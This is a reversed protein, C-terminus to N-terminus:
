RSVVFEIQEKEGDALGGRDPFSPTPILTMGTDSFKMIFRTGTAAKACRTEFEFETPSIWRGVAGYITRDLLFRNFKSTLAVEFVQTHTSLKTIIKILFESIEFSIKEMKSEANIPAINFMSYTGSVGAGGIIEQWCLVKDSITSYSKKMFRKQAGDNRASLACPVSANKTLYELVAISREDNECRIDEINKVIDEFLCKLVKDMNTAASTCVFVFDKDRCVVGYQGFAGDARFSNEYDNQWFQLGYGAAWDESMVPPSHPGTTPVLKSCAMDFWEENLLRKGQWVGKDAVFQIFKAMHEPKLKSGSGGMDVGDELKYCEYGEISLPTFLKENLYSFLPKKVKKSIIKSVLNTGATNYIYVKGPEHAFEHALFAKVWDKNGMGYNPIESAHGCTMTLLHWVTAKKLNESPNEPLKDPFIDVLRENLDLLGDQVAFGAATSTLSKTFSFMIHTSDKDYPAFYSEYFVKGHRLMMMSHMEIGYENLNELFSIIHASKLGIEEPSIRLLNM